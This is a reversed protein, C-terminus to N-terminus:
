TAEDESYDMAAAVGSIDDTDYGLDLAGLYIGLALSAALPLAATWRLKFPVVNSPLRAMMRAEFDPPLPPRTALGLMQDIARAEAFDEARAIALLAAREDKPWKAPDAGYAELVAKLRATM